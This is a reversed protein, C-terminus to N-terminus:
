WSKKCHGARTGLRGTQAYHHIATTYLQRINKRYKKEDIGAGTDRIQFKLHDYEDDSGTNEIRIEIHGSETYKIANSLLNGLIQTIKTDDMEYHHHLCADVSLLLQLNKERAMADYTKKIRDVLTQLSTKHTEIRANGTELKTFDLIDNVIRLLNRGAFKLSDLLEKDEDDARPKLLSSITIVANLPTRIEHSMTSLFDQKVKSAQEALNKKEIIEAKEKQAQAEKELMEMQKILEYNEIVQLTQTNIVAEKQHLYRELYELAKVPDNESRYIEYLHYTSKFRIMAVNYTDSVELATIFTEKAKEIDGMAMYLQGLKRYAMATGLREGADLHIVLAKKYDDEAKAFKELYTYVKGRGYLAFALGRIDGAENKMIISKNIMELAEKSKGQKLYIGSLPNYVNSELGKDGAKIAADISAEYTKVANKQDGFVEYITGLSKQARAENHYDNYKRYTTLCDILYILGLHLNDTKYYIGALNYKADAIGKEDNLEKFYGIAEEAMATSSEYRGKIMYFLSLQNLSKAILALDNVGRSLSLAKEALEISRPLNNIRSSYANDLLSLVEGSMNEKSPQDMNKVSCYTSNYSRLRM